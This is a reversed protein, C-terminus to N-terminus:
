CIESKVSTGKYDSCFQKSAVFGIKELCGIRKPINLTKIKVSGIGFDDIFSDIALLVIEKFYKEDYFRQSM